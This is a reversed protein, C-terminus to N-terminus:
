QQSDTLWKNYYLEETKNGPSYYGATFLGSESSRTISDSSRTLQNERIIAITDCYSGTYKQM